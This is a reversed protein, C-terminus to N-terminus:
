TSINIRQSMRETKGDVRKELIGLLIKKISSFHIKKKRFVYKGNQKLSFTPLTWSFEGFELWIGFEIMM